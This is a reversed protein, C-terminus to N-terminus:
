ANQRLWDMALPCSDLISIHGDGPRFWLEAGPIHRMLWDGHSPPIIRDLGGQVILVPATITSVEFGWPKVFSLDDAILGEPGESSARGADAGLSAWAGDLLAYDRDIFSTADFEATAEYRERAERGRAAARLSEGDSAMGGFWDDIGDVEFPALSALAVVGSIRDPLLAACALAHPGGGSHGMVAFRDLGLTDAIQAVDSAASAVDREPLVTSGGYGPRGYSLLRIGREATAALLPDLLAGTQPSGTHWLITFADRPGGGDQVASIRPASDHVRLVRGDDLRVDWATTMRMDYTPPPSCPLSPVPLDIPPVSKAHDTPQM